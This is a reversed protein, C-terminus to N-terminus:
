QFNTILRHIQVNCFGIRHINVNYFGIKVNCFGIRHINVNYFGTKVNCSGIRQINESYIFWAISDKCTPRSFGLSVSLCVSFCLCVSLSLSIYHLNPQTNKYHTVVWMQAMGGSGEWWEGGGGCVCVGRERGREGCVCVRVRVGVKKGWKNIWCTCRESMYWLPISSMIFTSIDNNNEDDDDDNNIVRFWQVPVDGGRQIAAGATANQSSPLLQKNLAGEQSIDVVIGSSLNM